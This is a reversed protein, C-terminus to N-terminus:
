RGTKRGWKSSPKSPEKMEFSSMKTNGKEVDFRALKPTPPVEDIRTM